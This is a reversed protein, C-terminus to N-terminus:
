FPELLKFYEFCSMAANVHKCTNKTHSQYQALLNFLMSDPVFRGVEQCMYQFDIKNMNAFYVAANPIPSDLMGTQKLCHLPLFQGLYYVTVSGNYNSPAFVHM